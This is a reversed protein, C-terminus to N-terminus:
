GADADTTVEKGNAIAAALADWSAAPDDPINVCPAMGFRNKADFADTHETYIVRETGGIAKARPGDKKLVQFFTGFLVTDAMKHTIGWTKPHCDSVFRDYDEGLPNRFPRVQCHSLILVSLGSERLCDLLQLFRKWEGVALEYGKHYSLFGKEGWVGKFETECVYEHCLREFGGLADLVLVKCDEVAKVTALLEPWSNVVAYPREPVRNYKFLTLYGTEQPALIFASGPAYAGLSTKGFGEVANVVIISGRKDPVPKM